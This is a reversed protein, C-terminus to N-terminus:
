ASTMVADVFCPVTTETEGPIVFDSRDSIRTETVNFEILSGGQAKVRVPLEAIPYVSASTGIVLLLDCRGILSDVEEWCRIPEGFLVVNPKLVFDCRPCKPLECPDSYRDTAAELHSCQLCQLTEHTGHVELVSKSGAAQHLRDINQTIIGQLDGQEELRALAKHANGPICEELTEGLARYFEWAKVPNTLFADLTGYKNPEFHTWLGGASRFDPIGCAVSIGAGTLAVAFQSSSYQQVAERFVPSRFSSSMM